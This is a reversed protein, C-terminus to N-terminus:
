AERTDWARIRRSRPRPLRFLPRRLQALQSTGCRCQGTSKVDNNSFTNNKFSYKNQLLKNNKSGPNNTEFPVDFFTSPLNTCNVPLCRFPRRVVVTYCRPGTKAREQQQRQKLQRQQEHRQQQQQKRKLVNTASMLHLMGLLSNGGGGGGGGGTSTSDVYHMTQRYLSRDSCCLPAM